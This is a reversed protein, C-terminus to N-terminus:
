TKDFGTKRFRIFSVIASVIVFIEALIGGLTFEFLNYTLWIPSVFCLQCIRIHKGNRGWMVVTEVTQALAIIVSLPGSFTLVMAILYASVTLAM